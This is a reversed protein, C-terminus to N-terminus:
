LFHKNIFLGMGLIIDLILIKWSWDYNLIYSIGFLFWIISFFPRYNKWWIVGGAELGTNRTNSTYLYMIGISFLIYLIGLTKQMKKNKALYVAYSRLGMCIFIFTLQRLLLTNM